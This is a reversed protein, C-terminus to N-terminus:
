PSRNRSQKVPEVKVFFAPALIHVYEHHVLYDSIPFYYKKAGFLVNRSTLRSRETCGAVQALESRLKLGPIPFEKYQAKMM